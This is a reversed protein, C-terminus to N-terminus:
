RITVLWVGACREVSGSLWARTPRIPLDDNTFNLVANVYQDRVCVVGSCWQKQALVCVSVPEIGSCKVKANIQFLVEVGSLDVNGGTMENPGVLESSVGYSGPYESCAAAFATIVALLRM